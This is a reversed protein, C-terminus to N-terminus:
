DFEVPRASIKEADRLDVEVVAETDDLPGHQQVYRMLRAIKQQATAEGAVEAGPARGWIVRANERTHLEYLTPSVSAPKDSPMAVVRYLGLAKWHDTFSAAISAAGQVRDDGWPTGVSGSPGSYDVTIRPFAMAEEVSFDEPPLLIGHADVPLLGGEGQYDVEFMAAPRRYELDVVVTAPSQKTVRTVKAVWTHQEFAQAVRVTLDEELISLPQSDWGADQFVEAAVDSKVWAPRQTTQMRDSSVIYKDSQSSIVGDGFQRWLIIAGAVFGLILAPILLRRLRAISQLARALGRTERTEEKSM